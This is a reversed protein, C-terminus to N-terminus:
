PTVEINGPDLELTLIQAPLAAAADEGPRPARAQLLAQFSAPTGVPHLTNLKAAAVGPV